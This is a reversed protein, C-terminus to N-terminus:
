TSSRACACMMRLILWVLSRFSILLVVVFVVLRVAAFPILKVWPFCLCPRVFVCVISDLLLVAGIRLFRVLLLGLAFRRCWRWRPFIIAIPTVGVPLVTACGAVFLPFRSSPLVVLFVWLFPWPFLLGMKIGVHSPTMNITFKGTPDCHMCRAVPATITQLVGVPPPWLDMAKEAIM